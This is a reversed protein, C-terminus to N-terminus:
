YFNTSKEGHTQQRPFPVRFVVNNALWGRAFFWNSSESHLCCCRKFTLMFCECLLFRNKQGYHFNIEQYHLAFPTSLSKSILIRKMKQSLCLGQQDDRGVVTSSNFM